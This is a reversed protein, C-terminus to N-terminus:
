SGVFADKESNEAFEEDDEEEEEENESRPADFKLLV